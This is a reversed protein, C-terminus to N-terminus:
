DSSLVSPADSITSAKSRIRCSPCRHLAAADELSIAAPVLVSELPSKKGCNACAFELDAISRALIGISLYGIM